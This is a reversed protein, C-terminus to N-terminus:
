KGRLLSAIDPVNDDSLSNNSDMDDEIVQPNPYQGISRLFNEREVSDDYAVRFGRDLYYDKIATLSEQKRLPLPFFLTYEDKIPNYTKKQASLTSYFTSYHGDLTNLDVAAVEFSEAVRRIPAKITKSLIYTPQEISIQYKHKPDKKRAEFQQRWHVSLRSDYASIGINLTLRAKKKLFM